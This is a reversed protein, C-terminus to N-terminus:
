WIMAWREGSRAAPGSQSRALYRPLNPMPKGCKECCVVGEEGSVAMNMGKHCARCSKSMVSRDGHSGQLKGGQKASVSVPLFLCSVMLFLVTLMRSFLLIKMILLDMPLM